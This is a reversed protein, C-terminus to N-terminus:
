LAESSFEGDASIRILFSDGTLVTGDKRMAYPTVTFTVEQGAPVDGVVGTFLFPKGYAAAVVATVVNGDADRGKLSTCVERGHLHWEEEMEVSSIDYGVEAYDVSDITAVFRIQYKGGSVPTFQCGRLEAGPATDVVSERGWVTVCKLSFLGSSKGNCVRIYRYSEESSVTLTVTDGDLKEPVTALTEWDTGNKSGEVAASEMRAFLTPHGTLRVRTIRTEGAFAGVVYASGVGKVEASNWVDSNGYTFVKAANASGADYDGGAYSDFAVDCISSGDAYEMTYVSIGGLTYWYQALTPAQEIKVYEYLVPSATEVRYTQGGTLSSPLMGLEDWQMGDTSAYVRSVRARNAHGDAVTDDYTVSVCSIATPETLRGIVYAPKGAVTEVSYTGAGSFIEAPTSGNWDEYNTELYTVELQIERDEQAADPNTSDAAFVAAPGLALLLSLSLLLATIQKRIRKM